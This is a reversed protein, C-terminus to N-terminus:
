SYEGYLYFSKILKENPMEKLLEPISKDESGALIANLIEDPKREEAM